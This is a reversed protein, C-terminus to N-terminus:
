TPQPEWAPFRKEGPGGSIKVAGKQNLNILFLEASQSTATNFMLHLSNPAWTPNEKHTHGETLQHEEQKIFDYIWIQRVGNTQACYALKKGDPSWVPCTNDRNKKTLLVPDDGGSAPITYIRATGDKNSVFAIKKGDPSFTPSGQAAMPASYLQRPKGTAGKGPVFDQIFLDPNGAVDSIFALCDQRPSLSPMLQNGKLYSVRKLTGDDFDCSYIKPQGIKYSVFLFNHCRGQQKSAQYTPTVCLHGDHTIQRANAGDYDCEWVESVWQNSATSKRMRLTYLVRTSAVGRVKFLATTLADATKHLVLRDEALRGSLMMGNLVKMKGTFIDLATVSLKRGELDLEIAYRLSTKKWADVSALSNPIPCPEFRCCGNHKLDFALVQELQQLYSKEFSTTVANAFRLTLGPLQDAASVHVVIDEARLFSTCLVLLLWLRKM